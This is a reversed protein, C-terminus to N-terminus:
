GRFHFLNGLFSFGNHRLPAAILLDTIAYAVAQQQEYRARVIAKREATAYPDAYEPHDLLQRETRETIWTKVAEPGIGARQAQKSLPELAGRRDFNEAPM